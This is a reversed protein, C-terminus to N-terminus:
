NKSWNVNCFFLMCHERLAKSVEKPKWKYFTSAPVFPNGDIIWQDYIQTYYSYVIAKTKPELGLKKLFIVPCVVIM